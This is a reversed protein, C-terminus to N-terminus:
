FIFFGQSQTRKLYKRFRNIKGCIRGEACFIGTKRQFKECLHASRGGPHKQVGNKKEALIFPPAQDAGSGAAPRGSRGGIRRGPPSSVYRGFSDELLVNNHFVSLDVAEVVNGGGPDGAEAAAVAERVARFFGGADQDTGRVHLFHFKGSVEAGDGAGAGADVVDRDVAARFCADHDEVGGAGVGVGHLLQDDRAHQQAGAVDDASIFPDALVRRIGADGLGGFLRLLGEGAVLDAALGQADDSQAGDANLHGIRGNRQAHRDVAVVGIQGEAGGDLQIVM